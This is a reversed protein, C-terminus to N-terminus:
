ISEAAFREQLVRRLMKGNDNQPLGGTDLIWIRRPAKYAALNQRCWGLLDSENATGGPQLEVAAVPIEGKEQHPLGFAVAHAVTPHALLAEELERAYVSYGGSKILDKMRGGLRILGLGNRSGIDGTRLWGDATLLGEGAGSDNWYHPKVGSRRIQVEGPEGRRAPRGDAGMVRIRFPPVPACFDGSGPWFSLDIGMMALGGLEVMGYGNLLV